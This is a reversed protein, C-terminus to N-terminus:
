KVKGRRSEERATTITLERQLDFVVCHDSNKVGHFTSRLHHCFQSYHEFWWFSPWAFVVFKAGSQHLRELEQIATNDDSPFGWFKGEHELFPITQWKGFAKNGLSNDDVLIFTEEPPIIAEIETVVQEVQRSWRLKSRKEEFKALRAGIEPLYHTAVILDRWLGQRNNKLWKSMELYCLTRDRWSIPARSIAAMYEAFLRWHPFILKGAQTPDYWVIAKYPQRYDYARISRQGHDRNLFLFDPIQYFNGHLSLEALLPLDHYNYNGLLPTKKLVDSRILGWIPNDDWTQEGLLLKFREAPFTSAIKEAPWPDVKRVTKGEVNICICQAYALVVSPKLELIKLCESLFTPQCVDDHAAWKFYKGSSLEFVRRYNGAAGINESNRYYRVRQDKAAYAQSIAGTEDSSANDSIILEFDEFTQNLISDVAKGIFNEGNYVPLGISVKPSRNSMM